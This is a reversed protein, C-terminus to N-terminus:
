PDALVGRTSWNFYWDTVSVESLEGSTGVTLSRPYRASNGRRTSIASAKPLEGRCGGALLPGEGPQRALDLNEM